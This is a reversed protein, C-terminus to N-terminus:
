FHKRWSSHNLRCRKRHRLRFDADYWDPHSFYLDTKLGKKHAAETLEKVVDRKFPTEMISYAIDCDEIVPGGPALWNPRRRIRTKTDYMSFGDHHKTTFAFMKAGSEAFFDVWEDADFGAPYWSKYLDQYAQREELSMELFPWSENQLQIRSYVGWVVRIGFKMDLFAEYADPSAWEYAAVPDDEIYGCVRQYHGDSAPLHHSFSHPGPQAVGPNPSRPTTGATSDPTDSLFGSRNM